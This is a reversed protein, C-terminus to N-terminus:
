RSRLRLSGSDLLHSQIAEGSASRAIVADLFLKAKERCAMGSHHWPSRGESVLPRLSHRSSAAGM